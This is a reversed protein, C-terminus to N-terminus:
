ILFTLMLYIYVITVPCNLMILGATIVLQIREKSNTIALYLIHILVLSNVTFTGIVYTFGFILLKDSQIIFNLLIFIMTGIVFSYLACKKATLISEQIM